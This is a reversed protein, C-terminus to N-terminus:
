ESFSYTTLSRTMSLSTMALSSTSAPNNRYRGTSKDSVSEKLSFTKKPYNEAGTPKQLKRSTETSEWALSASCLASMTTLMTRHRPLFEHKRNFWRQQSGEICYQNTVSKILAISPLISIFALSTQFAFPLNIPSTTSSFPTRVARLQSSKVPGRFIRM